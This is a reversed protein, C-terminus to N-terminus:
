PSGVREISVRTLPVPLSGSTLVNALDKVYQETFDGTIEGHQRITSQIAPTSFVRHNFIIALKRTRRSVPDPLNETTLGAMMEGGKDTLVFAINPRGLQDIGPEARELLTGDVRYPDNVVLLETLASNRGEEERTTLGPIELM